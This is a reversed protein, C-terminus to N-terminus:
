PAGREHAGADGARCRERPERGGGAPRRPSLPAGQVWPRAFRLAAVSQEAGSAGSAAAGRPRPFDPRKCPLPLLALCAPRAPLQSCPTRTCKAVWACCCPSVAWWIDWEQAIPLYGYKNPQRQSRLYDALMADAAARDARRQASAAAARMAAPTAHAESGGVDAPAKSGNISAPEMGQLVPAATQPAEATSQVAAAAPDTSAAEGAETEAAAAAAAPGRVVADEAEGLGATGAAFGAGPGAVEDSAPLPAASSTAACHAAAAGSGADVQRAAGSRVAGYAALVPNNELCPMLALAARTLGRELDGMHLLKLGIVVRGCLSPQM